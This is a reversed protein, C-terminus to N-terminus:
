ATKEVLPREYGWADLAFRWHREVKEMDAKSMSFRNKQYGAGAAVYTEIRRCAATWDPLGLEAYVREMEEIPKQELDEYRLEVLNGAPIM